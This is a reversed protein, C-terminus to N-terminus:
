ATQLGNYLKQYQPIIKAINFHKKVTARGKKGMTERLRNDNALRIIAEHLAKPDGPPVKIGVDGEIFLEDLPAVNTVVLPKAEAMAELLVLPTDFKGHMTRPPFLFIDCANILEPMNKVTNLFLVNNGLKRARLYDKVQKEKIADKKERIRVALIFKISSIDQSVKEIIEVVDDIAKMRGYDGAYLVSLRDGLGLERRLNESQLGPTFTSIDIGANIRSVNMPKATALLKRKTHDSVAVLRDG